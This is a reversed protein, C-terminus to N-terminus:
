ARRRRRGFLAPAFGGSEARPAASEAGAAPGEAAAPRATAGGRALAVRYPSAFGARSPVIYDTTVFQGKSVLMAAARGRFDARAEVTDADARARVLYGAEALRDVEAVFAAVVASANAPLAPPAAGGARSVDALPGSAFVAEPHRLSQRDDVFWFAAGAQRPHLERYISSARTTQLILGFMIKGRLSSLPPWPCAAGPPARLAAGLDADAGLGRLLRVADPTILQREPFVSRVEAELAALLPATMPPTSTLARAGPVAVGALAADIAAAGAEGLLAAPADLFEAELFITIPAHTPHSDSWRRVAGLCAVLTACSSRTDFDVAHFVKFGPKAWASKNNLPAAVGALALGAPQAYRGGEPDAHADLELARVGRDLQQKLTLHSYEWAEPLFNSQPVLARGLPGGLLARVAPDVGQHYSNHTALVKVQNLCPEAAASAAAAPAAAASAAAAAALGLLAALLARM